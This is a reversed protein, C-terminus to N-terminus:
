VASTEPWTVLTSLCDPLSVTRVTSPSTAAVNGGTATCCTSLPSWTVIAIPRISLLGDADGRELPEGDLEPEIPEFPAFPEAPEMPEDPEECWLPEEFNQRRVSRCSRTCVLGRGPTGTSTTGAAKAPTTAAPM